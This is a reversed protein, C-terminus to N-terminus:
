PTPIEVVGFYRGKDDGSRVRYSFFVTDGDGSVAMRDAGEEKVSLAVEKLSGDAKIELQYIGNLADDASRQVPIFLYHTGDIERGAAGYMRGGTGTSFEQRSAEDLSANFSTINGEYTNVFVQDNYFWVRAIEVVAAAATAGDSTSLIVNDGDRQYVATGTDNIAPPGYSKYEIGAEMAITRELILTGDAAISYIETIYSEDEKQIMIGAISQAPNFGVKLPKGSTINISNNETNELIGADDMVVTFIRAQGTDGVAASVGIVNSGYIGVGVLSETDRYTKPIDATGSRLEPQGGVVEVSNFGYVRDDNSNEFRVPAVMINGDVNVAMYDSSNDATQVVSAVPLSEPTKRVTIDFDKSDAYSDGRFSASTNATLVGAADTGAALPRTVAGNTVDLNNSLGSESWAITVNEYNPTLVLDQIVANFYGGGNISATNLGDLALAMKADLNINDTTSTIDLVAISTNSTLVAVQTNNIFAVDRSGAELVHSSQVSFGPVTLNVILLRSDEHGVIALKTFDESISATDSTVEVSSASVSDNSLDILAIDMQGNNDHGHNFALLKTGDANLHLEAPIFDLTIKSTAALTDAALKNIDGKASDDTNETVTFVTTSSIAFTKIDEIEESARINGLNDDYVTLNNENDYIVVKSDDAAIAFASVIAALRTSETDDIAIVTGSNITKISNDAEIKVKYFGYTGQDATESSANKPPINVYAYSADANFVADRLYNESAGSAADIGHGADTLVSVSSYTVTDSAVDLITLANHYHSGAIVKGNKASLTRMSSDTANLWGAAEQEVIQDDVNQSTLETLTLKVLSPLNADTIEQDTVTINKLNAAGQVIAKNIVAAIVAYRDSATHAALASKVAVSLDVKNEASLEGGFKDALYDNVASDTKTAIVQNYILENNLLTTDLSLTTFGAPATFIYGNEGIYALPFDASVLTTAVAADKWTIVQESAEGTDCSANQNVDVCVLSNKEEVGPAPDIVGTAPSKSSGGGCATLTAAIGISLLNKKFNM